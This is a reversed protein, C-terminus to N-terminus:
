QSSHRLENDLPRIAGRCSGNMWAAAPCNRQPLGNWVWSRWLTLCSASFIPTWAQAQNAPSRLSHPPPTTTHARCSRPMQLRWHCATTWNATMAEVSHSWIARLQLPISTQVPSSFPHFSETPLSHPVPPVAPTLESMEPCQSGRGRQKKRAPGQSSFLPFVRPAPNYESFLVLRSCLFSLSM